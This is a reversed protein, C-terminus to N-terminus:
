LAFPLCSSSQTKCKTWARHSGTTVQLAALDDEVAKLEAKKGNLAAMTVALKAEAEALAARKPGVVKAIREYTEMAYVWQCMGAAASSAKKAAEPNFKENPMYEERIKKVRDEDMNDKDYTKLQTIFNPDSMMKQSTPWYDWIKKTPDDPDPVKVPKLGMM